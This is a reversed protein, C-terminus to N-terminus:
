EFCKLIEGTEKNVILRRGNPIPKREYGDVNLDLKKTNFYYYSKLDKGMFTIDGMNDVCEVLEVTEPEPQKIKWHKIESESWSSAGFEEVYVVVRGDSSIGFYTREYNNECILVSEGAVCKEKIEKFTLM